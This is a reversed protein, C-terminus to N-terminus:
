AKLQPETRVYVLGYDWQDRTATPSASQAPHHQTNAAGGEVDAAAATTYLVSVVAKIEKPRTYPQFSWSIWVLGLVWWGVMVVVAGSLLPTIKQAGRM